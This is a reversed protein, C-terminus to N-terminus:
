HISYRKSHILSSWEGVCRCFIYVFVADNHRGVLIWSVCLATKNCKMHIYTHRWQFDIGVCCVFHYLHNKSSVEILWDISFTSSNQIVNSTSIFFLHENEYSNLDWILSISFLFSSFFYSFKFYPRILLSYIVRIFHSFSGRLNYIM